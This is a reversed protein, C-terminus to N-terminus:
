QGEKEKEKRNRSKQTQLEDSEFSIKYDKRKRKSISRTSSGDVYPLIKNRRYLRRLRIRRSNM